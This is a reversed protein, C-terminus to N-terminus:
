MCYHIELSVTIKIENHPMKYQIVGFSIKNLQRFNSTPSSLRLTIPLQILYFLRTNALISSYLYTVLQDSLTLYTNVEEGINFM